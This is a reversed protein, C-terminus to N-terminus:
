ILPQRDFIQLLVAIVQNVALGKLSPHRLKNDDDITYRNRRGDRSKGLYGAQELDTVIQGATRETIGVTAAIDRLRANPHAAVFALVRAHNTVFSWRRDRVPQSTM